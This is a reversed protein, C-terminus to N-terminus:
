RVDPPVAVVLEFGGGETRELCVVGGQHFRAVSPEDRGAVLRSTVRALHPLHGCVALDESRAAIQDVLWSPDALPALEPHPETDAVGLARAVIQATERARTKGSHWVATPRAALAGLRAATRAVDDRGAATLPRDPDEEKSFAKGHQILWMRM